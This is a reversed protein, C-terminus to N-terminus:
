GAPRNDFLLCWGGTTQGVIRLANYGATFDEPPVFASWKAPASRLAKSYRGNFEVVIASQRADQENLLVHAALFHEPHTQIYLEPHAVEIASECPLVIEPLKFNPDIQEAAPWWDLGRRLDLIQPLDLHERSSRMRRGSIKPGDAATQLGYSSPNLGVIELIQPLLDTSQFMSEIRRPASQGPRKVFLPVSAIDIYNDALPRRRPMGPTLRMGHDATVVLLTEDLRGSRRLRNMVEGVMRDVLQLQWRFLYRAEVDAWSEASLEDKADHTVHGSTTGHRFLRHKTPLSTYPIHPYLSHLFHLDPGSAQNMSQDMRDLWKEFKKLREDHVINSSESLFSSWQGTLPPLHAALFKPVVLHAYLVISDAAILPWNAEDIRHHEPALTSVSEEVNLEYHSALITFLNQPHDDINANQAPDPSKGTLLAPLALRTRSAVTSAQTYWDAEDALQAFNPFLDGRIRLNSDLLATLPLEDFVLMVLHPRDVMKQGDTSAVSSPKASFNLYGSPLQVLLLIPFIVAAIVALRLGERVQPVRLTLAIGAFGCVGILVLIVQPRTDSFVQPTIFCSLLLIFLAAFLWRLATALVPLPKEIASLLLVLGIPIAFSVICLFWILDTHQLAHASLFTPFRGILDFLPQAVALSYLSVLELAGLQV